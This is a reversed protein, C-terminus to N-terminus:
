SELREENRHDAASRTAWLFRPRETLDALTKAADFGCELAFEVLTKGQQEAHEMVLTGGPRLLEFARRVIGRPVVLGDEGGGYLAMEPDFLVEGRLPPQGPVYPPNSLVLDITGEHGPLAATADGEVLVYTSGPELRDGCRALNRRGYALAAQSLEVATVDVGPAECALALGIAGSGSCLDVVRSGPTALPLALEVLMETEPRVAFVGPGAQLTLGRFYMEGTIHQLPFSRCRQAIASRYREAARQGVETPARLLSDVDLSWQLLLRAEHASKGAQVLRGQGWALLRQQSVSGRGFGTM